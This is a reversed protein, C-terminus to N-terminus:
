WGPAWRPSLSNGQWRKIQEHFIKTSTIDINTDKKDYTM